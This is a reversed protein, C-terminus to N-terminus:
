RDYGLSKCRIWRAEAMETGRRVAYVLGCTAFALLSNGHMRGMRRRGQISIQLSGQYGTKNLRYPICPINDFFCFYFVGWAVVDADWRVRGCVEAMGGMGSMVGRAEDRRVGWRGVAAGSTGLVKWRLEKWIHNEIIYKM